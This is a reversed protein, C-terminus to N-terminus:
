GELAAVLQAIDHAFDTTRIRPCHRNFLPAIDTPVSAPVSTMDLLVPVIRKNQALAHLVEQRVMDTPLEIAQVIRVIPTAITSRDGLWNPGVCVLVMDADTIATFLARRFDEGGSLLSIDQLISFGRATLADAIRGVTAADHRRYSIFINVASGGSRIEPAM